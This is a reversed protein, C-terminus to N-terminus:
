LSSLFNLVHNNQYAFAHHKLNQIVESTLNGSLPVLFKVIDLNGYLAANHLPSEDYKDKANIEAGNELCFKVM